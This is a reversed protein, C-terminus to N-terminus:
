RRTIFEVHTSFDLGVRFCYHFKLLSEERPGVLFQLNEGCGPVATNYGSFIDDNLYVCNGILIEYWAEHYEMKIEKRTLIHLRVHANM